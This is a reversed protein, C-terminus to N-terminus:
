VIEELAELPIKWLAGSGARAEVGGPIMEFEGFDLVYVTQGIVQVDIPRRFAGATLARLSWSSPDIRALSRGVRPGAPGTMPREDGFLTVLLQGPWRSATEPIAAMKTAAANVALQMLPPEPPPLEGHNALVPQPAPGRQPRFRPDTVPVGGVFDPWGYWAGRRVEFLLDPANGVPRSGRDDAGQDMALLRGDPLFLLGYANRLGWAVLELGSGDPRCRMVSATCPLRAEIRQGPDTAVGFPSFAGTRVRRDGNTGLPNDTEVNWGALVVPYGPVDHNHPLRRLWGLEYADLGVVGSNTLAGQSFYLWGDPGVATMNTHYNGLGPLGDLVTELEGGPKWRSIRGPYGGEAIFFSGDHFSLGNVPWRLDAVRKEVEGDPGIRRIRGGPAAGDFPLGSEAVWPAGEADFALSTPFDLGQAVLEAASM